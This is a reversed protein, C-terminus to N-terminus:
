RKAGIRELREQMAAIEDHPATNDDSSWCGLATHIMQAEESTLAEGLKARRCKDADNMPKSTM